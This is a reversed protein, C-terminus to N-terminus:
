ALSRLWTAVVQQPPKPAKFLRAIASGSRCADLERRLEAGDKPREEPEKRLTRAVLEAVRPPAGLPPATQELIAKATTFHDTYRFPLQGAVLQYVLQGARYVDLAPSAPLQRLEEPALDNMPLATAWGPGRSNRGMGEALGAVGAFLLRVTGDPALWVVDLDLWRHLVGGAHLAALADALQCALALAVEPDVSGGARQVARRLTQGDQPVEFLLYTDELSSELLKPLLPHQIGVVRNLEPELDEGSVELFMVIGERGTKYSRAYAAKWLRRSAVTEILDFSLEAPPVEGFDLAVAEIAAGAELGGLGVRGEGAESTELGRLYVKLQPARKQLVQELRRFALERAGKRTVLADFRGQELLRDVDEISTAFKYQHRRSYAAESLAKREAEDELFFLLNM